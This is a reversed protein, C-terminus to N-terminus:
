RILSKFSYDMENWQLPRSHLLARQIVEELTHSFNHTVFITELYRAFPMKRGEFGNSIPYNIDEQLVIWKVALLLEELSLDFSNGIANYTKSLHANAVRSILTSNPPISNYPLRKIISKIDINGEQSIEILVDRFEEGSMNCNTVKNYIDAIINTHSLATTLGYKIIDVRYDYVIKSGSINSKYGPFSVSIKSGNNCNEVVIQTSHLNNNQVNNLFSNQEFVSILYNRAQQFDM